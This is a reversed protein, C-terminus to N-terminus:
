SHLARCGYSNGGQNNRGALIDVGIRSPKKQPPKITEHRDTVGHDRSKAAKGRKKQAARKEARLAAIEGSTPPPKSAAAVLATNTPSLDHTQPARIAM